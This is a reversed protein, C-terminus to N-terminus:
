KGSDCDFYLVLEDGCLDRMNGKRDWKKSQNKEANIKHKDIANSIQNGKINIRSKVAEPMVPLEVNISQKRM